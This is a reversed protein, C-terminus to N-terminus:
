FLTYVILILIIALIMLLAAIKWNSGFVIPFPGILIVGGGKISKKTDGEYPSLDITATSVLGFMFLLVAIFFLIFGAFAYIGTGIIFPFILLFGTEVEGAYLGL